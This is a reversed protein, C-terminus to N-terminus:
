QIVQKKIWEFTMSMGKFLSIQPEWNMKEKYSIILTEEKLVLRASLDM